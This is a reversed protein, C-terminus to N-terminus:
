SAATAPSGASRSRLRHTPANSVLCRGTALDFQWGHVTCTLTTGDTKGFRSLDGQLHPCRRQVIWDGLQIDAEDGQQSAYWGEAYMLRDPALCKFFTYLYENYPGIRRARFRMSLFLSNVWDVQHDAILRELLPRDITFQYRCAEGAHPRVQGAPFDIVIPPGDGPRLLVPGGVGARIHGALELLPEFWAKLEALLDTGPAPWRRKAAAIQGAARAAYRRLYRAKDTYPELAQAATAPWRVQGHGPGVDLVAGPTLLTGGEIGHSALYDLFALQDPFTSAPDRTLDNLAFLDEDLFCAPGASPVVYRAGIAKVYRAARDLSNARKEAGFSRQASTPLEYTWPWWIAGSYQLLHVDYPGFSQLADLDGPRADNQDLIRATGDDVALASDGLPGDAPSDLVQMMLRLGGLDVAQGNPMVIFRTFGLRELEDRLDRVPFDPLLVQADRSVHERLLAPDFHDRHLHSVYLYEVKGYRDFDLESNDPFVFWSAFYAPNKWPDCLISGLRTEIHLGAHGLFTIRMGGGEAVRHLM